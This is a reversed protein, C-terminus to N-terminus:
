LHVCSDNLHDVLLDLPLHPTTLSGASARALLLSTLRTLPSGSTATTVPCRLKTRATQGTASTTTKATGQTDTATPYDLVCQEGQSKPSSSESGM